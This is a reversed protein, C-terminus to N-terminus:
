HRRFYKKFSKKLYKNKSQKILLTFGKTIPLGAKLILALYKALFMKDETKVKNLFFM